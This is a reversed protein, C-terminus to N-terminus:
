KKQKKVATIKVNDFSTSGTAGFMGIRVIAERSGAPVRVDKKLKEWDQSGRFPGLIATGLDRRESDYFTLAVVPLSTRTPGVVVNECKVSSSLNIGTVHRGDVPFGQMVHAARGEEANEFKVYYKGSPSLKDEVMEMQRQYYWGPLFQDKNDPLNEFDGNQLKPNKPDPKIRRLDEAAGTMPVFLTPRLAESELKGNKKRMLVLTQQYREGVPIVMLGGEKLQEVLARPVREPSCTVIIKDFPAYRSWGKFGDGIKTIVNKYNLKKLTKAARLGLPEVIEISYVKDVLPSLVAAQYGSGTGIELVKDSPKPDISETMYAVIFPSSITQKEGIPLGADLYAQDRIKRPVFEHRPTIMMAKLVREDEVGARRVYLDVMRRRERELQKKSQAEANPVLTMFFVFGFVFKEIVNM